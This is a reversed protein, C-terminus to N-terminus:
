EALKRVYVRYEGDEEFAGLFENGTRKCWDPMDAVIGEDTAIVELVQGVKLEKMKQSANFIPMPCTLGFCDLSVDPKIDM